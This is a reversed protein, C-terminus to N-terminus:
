HIVVRRELEDIPIRPYLMVDRLYRAYNQFSLLAVRRVEPDNPSKGLVHSFNEKAVQRRLGMFYYASRGMASAAAFSWRRPALSTVVMGVRWLWYIVIM